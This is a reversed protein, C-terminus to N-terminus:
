GGSIVDSARLYANNYRVKLLELFKTGDKPFYKKGSGKRPDGIGAVALEQLIRTATLGNASMTKGDWVISGSAVDKDKRFDYTYVVVKEAM